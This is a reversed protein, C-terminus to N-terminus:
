WDLYLGAAFGYGGTEIIDAMGHQFLGRPLYRGLFSLGLDKVGWETNMEIRTKQDFMFSVLGGLQVEGGFEGGKIKNQTSTNATDRKIYIFHYSMAGLVYPTVLFFDPDWAKWRVGTTVGMLHYKLRDTTNRSICKGNADVACDTAKNYIYSLGVTPEIRYPFQYVGFDVAVEPIFGDRFGNKNGLREDKFFRQGISVNMSGEFANVSHLHSILTIFTFAWAM